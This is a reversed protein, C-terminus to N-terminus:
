RPLADVGQGLKHGSWLCVLLQEVSSCVNTWPVGWPEPLLQWPMQCDCEGCGMARERALQWSHEKPFPMGLEKGSGAELDDILADDIPLQLFQQVCDATTRTGVHAAVDAWSEGFLELGEM